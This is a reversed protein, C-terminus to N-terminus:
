EFGCNTLSQMEYYVVLSLVVVDFEAARNNAMQVVDGMQVSAHQPHLDIALSLLRTAAAGHTPTGLTATSAYHNRLAGVDLLQVSAPRTIAIGSAISLSSATSTVPILSIADRLHGIVWQSANFAKFSQASEGAM